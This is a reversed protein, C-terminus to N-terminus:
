PSPAFRKVMTIENGSGGHFIEDANLQILLLGRGNERLLNKPDRPDPQGAWDFGGGMDTVTCRIEHDSITATLVVQRHARGPEAAREALLAEYRDEKLAAAKEQLTVGLNGHEIANLLAEHVMLRVAGREETTLREPCLREIAQAVPPVVAISNPIRMLLRQAGGSIEEATLRQSARASQLETTIVRRLDEIELPKKLYNCAGARLAGIAVEETGHGTIIV